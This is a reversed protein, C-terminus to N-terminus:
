PRYEPADTQFSHEDRRPISPVRREMPAQVSRCTHCVTIEKKIEQGQGGPDDTYISGGEKTWHHPWPKVEDHHFRNARARFPYTKARTSLVEKYAQEGPAAQVGCKECKNM